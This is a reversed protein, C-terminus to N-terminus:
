LGTVLRRYEELIRSRLPRAQDALQRQFVVYDERGERTEIPIAAFGHGSLDYPSARMDIERARRALDFADALVEGSSFPAITYAFKYLDMNAHICGGQDYEVSTARALEIRNRPVAAPTFFRFADYHTCRLGQSDVVDAIDALSLRLPTSAHRVGETRYLMAWEHLGFCGFSPERNHVAELYDVAWALTNRRHEPFRQFHLSFGRDVEVFDGPWDLDGPAADQLLVGAGPSWRLLHAPRLSYYTFLFDYVPHKIGRIVRHRHADVWPSLRARHAARRAQWAQRLLRM